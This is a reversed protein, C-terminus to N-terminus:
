AAEDIERPDADALDTPVLFSWFIPHATLYSWAALADAPNTAYAIVTDAVGEARYAALQEANHRREEPTPSRMTWNREAPRQFLTLGNMERWRPGDQDTWERSTPEDELVPGASLSVRGQYTRDQWILERHGDAPRM